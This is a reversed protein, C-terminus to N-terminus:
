LQNLIPDKLKIFTTIKDNLLNFNKYISDNDESFSIELNSALLQIDSFGCFSVSGHLKHTLEQADIINNSKLAQNILIIQEPLEIFLKNFITKALIMNGSSRELLASVYDHIEINNNHLTSNLPPIPLWLNLLEELQEMLVPKILCEDFGTKILIKRQHSQAHATIAIFPSSQNISGPQKILKILELGSYYPMQIDLLILDYKIQQLYSLAAKGDAALTINSCYNNLQSHLLLRNIENDDAIFISALDDRTSLTSTSSQTTSQEPNLQIKIINKLYSSRCPLSLFNIPANALTSRAIFITPGKTLLILKESISKSSNSDDEKAYFLLDCPKINKNSLEDVSSVDLVSYGLFVLQKVFAKRRLRLADIVFFSQHKLLVPLSKPLSIPLNIWFTSGIDYQSCAGITGDLQEIIKKSITLGLGTGLKNYTAYDSAQLFPQFLSKIKSKHIGIGTDSVSIFLSNNSRISCRLIIHGNNTFKNANGLLNTIIQQLRSPDSTISQPISNDIDIIIQVNKSASSLIGSCNEIIERFDFTSLNIKFNGTELSSYDLIENVIALLSTASIKILQAQDLQRLSLRSKTLLEIFGLIGNMPTRIEHSIHAIFKSKSKNESIALQTSKQLTKNKEELDANTKNLKDVANDVQSKLNSQTQQIGSAMSNFSQCLLNIESTNSGIARANMNGEALSNAIKTLSIISHSITQSLRITVLTSCIIGLSIILLSNILFAQQKEHTAALSLTVKVSGITKLPPSLQKLSSNFSESNKKISVITVLHEYVILKDNSPLSAKESKALTDGSNNFIQVAAIDKEELLANTIKGLVETNGSFVGYRSSIALQNTTIKGKEKLANELDVFQYQIFYYAISVVLLFTPAIGLLLLRFQIGSLNM